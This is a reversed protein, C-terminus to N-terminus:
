LVSSMELRREVDKRYAPDNAYRPDSMARVVEQTSRFEQVSSQGSASGGILKPPTGNSQTYQAYLGKVAMKASSMDGSTVLSDYAKVEDPTLNASAWKIMEAYAEQGGTEKYITQAEREQTAQFGTIYQRVLEKPIGMKELKDFSETSLEGKEDWEKHFPTLDAKAVNSLAEEETKPTEEETERNPDDTPKDKPEEQKPSSLKKELESYAKALDEISNFKEPLSAPREPVPAPEVVESPQEPVPADVIEPSEPTPADAGTEGESIVVRNFSSM